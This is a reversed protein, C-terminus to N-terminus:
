HPMQRLSFCVGLGRPKDQNKRRPRQVGPEWAELGQDHGSSKDLGATKLGKGLRREM